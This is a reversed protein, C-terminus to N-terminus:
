VDPDFSLSIKEIVEILKKMNRPFRRDINLRDMEKYVIIELKDAIRRLENNCVISESESIIRQEASRIIHAALIISRPV